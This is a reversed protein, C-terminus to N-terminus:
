GTVFSTFLYAYPTFGVQSMLRWSAGNALEVVSEAIYDTQTHVWHLAATTAVKGYGRRWHTPITDIYLEALLEGWIRVGCAAVLQDAVFVGFVQPWSHPETLTWFIPSAARQFAAVQTQDAATLARVTLSAEGPAPAAAQPSRENLMILAPGYLQQGGVKALLAHLRAAEPRQNPQFCRFLQDRLAPPWGTPVRVLWGGRRTLAWFGPHVSTTACHSTDSDLLQEVEGDLFTAWYDDVLPAAITPLQQLNEM